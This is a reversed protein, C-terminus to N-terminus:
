LVCSRHSCNGVKFLDKVAAASAAMAQLSADPNTAGTRVPLVSVSLQYGSGFRQKLRLSSGIARVRCGNTPAVSCVTSHCSFWCSCCFAFCFASWGGGGLAGCRGRAMIAVKDGLIDAEQM